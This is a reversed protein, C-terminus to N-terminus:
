ALKAALAEQAMEDFSQREARRAEDTSYLRAILAADVGLIREILRGFLLRALAHENYADQLGLMFRSFPHKRVEGKVGLIQIRKFAERIRRGSPDVTRMPEFFVGKFFPAGYYLVNLFAWAARARVRLPQAPRRRKLEQYEPSSYVEVMHFDVAIHRSEDRNILEMARESMEDGVYDNISRLLAVDLILEGSTIYTNAIEPSLYKVAAVFHPTFRTLAPNPQYTKYHHVDYYDALLQAAHAHRVEDRVFSEFIDRLVVDSTNKRQQEFLAGALREIGAMDTFYQVIAIEDSRSMPRPTGSFDLDRIHWQERRCKDLM